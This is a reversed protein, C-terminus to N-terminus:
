EQVWDPLILYENVQLACMPLIMAATVWTMVIPTVAVLPLTALVSVMHVAVIM